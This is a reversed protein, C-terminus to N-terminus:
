YLEKGKREKEKKAENEHDTRVHLEVLTELM